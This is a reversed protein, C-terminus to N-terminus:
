PSYIEMAVADPEYFFILVLIASYGQAIPFGDSASLGM